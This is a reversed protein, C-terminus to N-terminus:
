EEWRWGPHSLLGTPRRCHQTMTPWNDATHLIKLSGVAAQGVGPRPPHARRGERRRRIPEPTLTPTGLSSTPLLTAQLRSDKNNALSTETPLAEESSRTDSWCDAQPRRKRHEMGGNYRPRHPQTRVFGPGAWWCYCSVPSRLCQWPKHDACSRDSEKPLSTGSNCMGLHFGTIVCYTPLPVQTKLWGM